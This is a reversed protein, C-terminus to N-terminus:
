RGVMMRGVVPGISEGVIRYVYMGAEWDSTRLIVESENTQQRFVPRGNQDHVQVAVTRKADNSFLLRVNGSSVDTLRAHNREGFDRFFITIVETFGQGGMELRYANEANRSPSTDLYTYTEDSDTSGCIGPIHHILEFASGGESRYAMVGNCQNGGAIVWRLLVGNQQQIAVLERLIPHPRQALVTEPVALVLLLFTLLYRM